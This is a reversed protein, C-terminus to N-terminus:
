IVREVTLTHSATFRIGLFVLTTVLVDQTNVFIGTFIRFLANVYASPFSDRTQPRFKENFTFSFTAFSGKSVTFKKISDKVLHCSNIRLVKRGKVM